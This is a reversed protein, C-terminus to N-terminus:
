KVLFLSVLLINLKILSNNFKNNKSNKKNYKNVSLPVYPINM